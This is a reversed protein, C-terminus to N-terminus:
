SLSAEAARRDAREEYHNRALKLRSRVLEIEERPTRNGRKSKKQFVHLV